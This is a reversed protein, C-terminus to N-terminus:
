LPRSLMCTYRTEASVYRLLVIPEQDPGPSIEKARDGTRESDHPSTPQPIVPEQNSLVPEHANDAKKRGQGLEDAGEPVLVVQHAHGVLAVERRADLDSGNRVLFRISASAM